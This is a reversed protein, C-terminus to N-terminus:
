QFMKEGEVLKSLNAFLVGLCHFANDSDQEKYVNTLNNASLQQVCQNAHPLLHQQM